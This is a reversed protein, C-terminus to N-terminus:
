SGGHDESVTEEGPGSSPRPWWRRRVPFTNTLTGKGIGARNTIDSVKISHIDVDEEILDIVAQFLALEKESLKEKM